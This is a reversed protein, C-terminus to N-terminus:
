DSNTNGRAQVVLVMQGLNSNSHLEAVPQPHANEFGMLLSRVAGEFGGSFAVSAELPYDYESLWDFEVNARRSWGELVKRLTEGRDATWSDTVMPSGPVAVAAPPFPSVPVAAMPQQALPVLPMPAPGPAPMLAVPGPAVALPRPEMGGQYPMPMPQITSVVPPASPMIAHAAFGVTVMQGRERAMLGVPDLAERLTDRWPHGGQFSVLTGMDVDQDISFAYGSPLIQRLAVALPVSKAFGIVVGADALPPAPVMPAVVAAQPPPATMIAAPPPASTVNGTIVVPSIIEPGSTAPAFSPAAVAPAPPAPPLGIPPAAVADSPAVWQFGALAPSSVGVSVVALLAAGAYKLSLRDSM